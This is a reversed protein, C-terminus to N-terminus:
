GVIVLRFPQKNMLRFFKGIALRSALVACQGWLLGRRLGLGICGHLDSRFGLSRDGAVNAPHFLIFSRGDVGTVLYCWGFRPSRHWVCRYEGAPICSINPRNGRDPLEISYCFLSFDVYLRGLTGQDTSPDRVLIVSRM